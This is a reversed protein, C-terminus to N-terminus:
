AEVEQCQGLQTGLHIAGHLLNPHPSKYLGGILLALQERKQESSM